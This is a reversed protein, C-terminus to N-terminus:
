ACSHVECLGHKAGAVTKAAELWGHRAVLVVYTRVNFPGSHSSPDSWGRRIFNLQEAAGNSPADLAGTALAFFRFNLLKQVGLAVGKFMCLGSEM